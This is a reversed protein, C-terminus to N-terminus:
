HIMFSSLFTGNTHNIAISVHNIQCFRVPGLSVFYGDHHEAVGVCIESRM